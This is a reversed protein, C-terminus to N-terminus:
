LGKKLLDDKLIRLHAAASDDLTWGAVQVKYGAILKPDKELALEVKKGLAKSAAAEVERLFEPSVEAASLLKGKVIGASSQVLASFERAMESILGMRNNEVLMCIFNFIEVSCKGETASKAVALKSELTNFPNQFFTRVDSTIAKAIEALQKAGEGASGKEYTVDFLAKSYKKVITDQSM